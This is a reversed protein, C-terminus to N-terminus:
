AATIISQEGTAGESDQRSGWTVAAKCGGRHPLHLIIVMKKCIPFSLGWSHPHNTWPGLITVPSWHGGGVRLNGMETNEKPRLRGGGGGGGGGWVM